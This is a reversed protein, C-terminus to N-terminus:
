EGTEASDSTFRYLIFAVIYAATAKANKFM